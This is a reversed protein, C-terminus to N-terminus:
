RRRRRALFLAVFGGVAIAAMWPRHKLERRVYNFLAVPNTAAAVVHGADELKARFGHKASDFKDTVTQTEMIPSQLAVVMGAIDAGPRRSAGGTVDGDRM